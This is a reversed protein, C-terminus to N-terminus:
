NLFHYSVANLKYSTLKHEGMTHIYIDLTMRGFINYAKIERFGMM